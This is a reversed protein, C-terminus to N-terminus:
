YLSINRANVIMSIDRLSARSLAFRQTETRVCVKHGRFNKEFFPLAVRLFQELFVRGNKLLVRQVADINQVCSRM